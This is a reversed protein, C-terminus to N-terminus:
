ADNAFSPAGNEHLWQGFAAGLWFGLDGQAAPFNVRRNFEPSCTRVSSWGSATPGYGGPVTGHLLDSASCGTEKAVQHITGGNWGFVHLLSILRQEPTMENHDTPRGNYM